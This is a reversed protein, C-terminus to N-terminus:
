ALDSEFEVEGTKSSDDLWWGRAPANTLGSLRTGDCTATVIGAATNETKSTPEASAARSATPTSAESTSTSTAALPVTTSSSSADVLAVALFGLGVAAAATATWATGLLFTRNM